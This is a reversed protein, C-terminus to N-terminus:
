DDNECKRAVVSFDPSLYYDLHIKDFFSELDVVNALDAFQRLPLRDRYWYDDINLSKLKALVLGTLDDTCSIEGEYTEHKGNGKSSTIIGIDKAIRALNYFCYGEQLFTGFELIKMSSYQKALMGFTDLNFFSYHTVSRRMKWSEGAIFSEFSRNNPIGKIILVGGPKLADLVKASVKGPYPFHEFFEVMLICDFYNRVGIGENIDREIINVSKYKKKAHDLSINSYDMLYLNQPAWGAGTLGQVLRGRGCGLDLMRGNMLGYKKLIKTIYVLDISTNLADEEPSPFYYNDVSVFVPVPNVYEHRCNNCEVITRETIYFLQNFDASGCVPCVVPEYRKIERFNKSKRM